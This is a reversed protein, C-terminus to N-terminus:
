NENKSGLLRFKNGVVILKERQEGNAATWKNVSLRGDICVQSGKKVYESALEAQKDWIEINFWDTTETKTKYDWRSVAVSFTTKVKGSEYWKIEPDQGARGIIVVSNM